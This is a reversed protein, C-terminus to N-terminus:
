LREDLLKRLYRMELDIMEEWECKGACYSHDGYHNMLYLTTQGNLYYNEYIYNAGEIIGDYFSDALNYGNHVGDGYMGMSYPNNQRIHIKSTGWGSEIGALSLFFLPDMGTENSAEIFAGETNDLASDPYLEVYHDILYEIDSKSIVEKNMLDDAGRDYYVRNTVVRIDDDPVYGDCALYAPSTSATLMAASLVAAVGYLM